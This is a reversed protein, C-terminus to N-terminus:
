LDPQDRAPSRFASWLTSIQAAGKLITKLLSPKADTSPKKKRWFSAVGAVLTATASAFSRVTRVEAALGQVEAVMTHWEQVLQARNLESEAILIKKRLELPNM